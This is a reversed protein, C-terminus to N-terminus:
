ERRIIIENGVGYWLCWHKYSAELADVTGAAEFYEPAVLEDGYQRNQDSVDLKAGNKLIIEVQNNDGMVNCFSVLTDNGYGDSPKFDIFVNAEVHVKVRLGNGSICFLAINDTGNYSGNTQRAIISIPQDVVFEESQSLTGYISNTKDYRVNDRKFGGRWAVRSNSVVNTDWVYPKNFVESITKLMKVSWESIWGRYQESVWGQHSNAKGKTDDEFTSTMRGTGHKLVKAEQNDARIILGTERVFSFAVAPGGAEIETLVNSADTVEIISGDEFRISDVQRLLSIAPNGGLSSFTKHYKIFARQSELSLISFLDGQETSSFTINRRVSDGLTGVSNRNILFFLGNSHQSGYGWSRWENDVVSSVEFLLDWYTGTKISKASSMLTSAISMIEESNITSTKM